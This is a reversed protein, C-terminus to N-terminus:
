RNNPLHKIPVHASSSYRPTTILNNQSRSAQSSRDQLVCTSSRKPTSCPSHRPNHTLGEHVVVETRRFEGLEGQRFIKGLVGAIEFKAFVVNAVPSRGSTKTCFKGGVAKIVCHIANLDGTGQLPDGEIGSFDNFVQPQLAIRAGALRATCSGALARPSVRVVDKSVKQRRRPASADLLQVKASPFFQGKGGPRDVPCHLADNFGQHSQRHFSPRHPSDREDPEPGIPKPGAHDHCVVHLCQRAPDLRGKLNNRLLAIRNRFLEQVANTLLPELDVDM